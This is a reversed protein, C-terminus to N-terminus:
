ALKLVRNVIAQAARNHALASGFGVVGVDLVTGQGLRYAVVAVRGPATGAESLLSAPAVSLPELASFGSISGHFIGIEDRMVVLPARNGSVVPAPRAGLADVDAAQTPDLARGGRITVARLLSGIGLSLVRGGGEVYSRLASQLSRPLWQETGALVVLGHGKLRPGVGDILGLDTTLDYGHRTSDLYALLGAEDAFGAPLGRALVRALTIPGGNALTNPIGDGTDDVASLGQWTLAPLVVLVAQPRPASAEIPVSTTYAGSRLALEYLGARGPPMPVSLEAGTGMGGGVVARDGVRRLSWTYSVPGSRAGPGGGAQVRVLAHSGAAVPDLPPQAALYRVTVGAHATSGAPPPIREPFQGTNCTADTVTLGVLYIGAPAPRGGIRGDWVVSHAGWPLGFSKVLRPPGSLDTRYLNVYGGREDEGSFDIQAASAGSRPIVSPTVRLVRPRPPASQVTIPEPGAANSIVVTRGQHILSVQFYYTGDPAVQGNAERGNWAFDGDPNRVGRRMHRGSALTDVVNGSQDIVYVDVDDSRHLLYFSLRTSRYSVGGCTGGSVPNIVAPDPAPYGDLLPTTVKLHQTVFFAAVTAVVLVGLVAAPLRSV